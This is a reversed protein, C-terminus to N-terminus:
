DFHVNNKIRQIYSNLQLIEEESFGKVVQAEIIRRDEEMLARLELARPTLVLKRLRADHPVSKREVLGKQVMLNIVKSATSRTVGFVDELEKQYVDREAHDAIYAIIWANTGTAEEVQKKNTKNDFYRRIQNNLSRLEKAIAIKEVFMRRGFFVRQVDFLGIEFLKVDLLGVDLM